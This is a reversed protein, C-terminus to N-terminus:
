SYMARATKYPKARRKHFICGEWALRTGGTVLPNRFALRGSSWAIRHVPLPKYGTFGQGVLCPSGSLRLFM